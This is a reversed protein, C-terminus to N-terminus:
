LNTKNVRERFYGKWSEPLADVNMARRLSNLDEPAFRKAVYL